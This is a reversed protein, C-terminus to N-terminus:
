LSKHYDEKYAENIARIEANTRTALIEILAKEDTGAGEMAKKLQKADYHAPPMMLGLILRALDGSIESKLDAMLDRGFHSKFTQRIQQ